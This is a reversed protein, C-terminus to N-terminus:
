LYALCACGEFADSPELEEVFSMLISLIQSSRAVVINSDLDYTAFVQSSKAQIKSVHIGHSWEHM